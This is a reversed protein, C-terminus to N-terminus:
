HILVEVRWTELVVGEEEEEEEQEEKEETVGREEEEETVGREGREGCDESREKTDSKM